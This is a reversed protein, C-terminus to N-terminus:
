HRGSVEGKLMAIVAPTLERIVVQVQDAPLLRGFGEPAIYCLREGNFACEMGVRPPRDHRDYYRAYSEYLHAIIVQIAMDCIQAGEDLPRIRHWEAMQEIYPMQIYEMRHQQSMKENRLYHLLPHGPMSQLAEEIIRDICAYRALESYRWEAHRGM